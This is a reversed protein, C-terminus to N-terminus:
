IQWYIFSFVSSCLTIFLSGKFVNSGGNDDCRDAHPGICAGYSMVHAVYSQEHVSHFFHAWPGRAYIPVDAASHTSEWSQVAAPNLFDPDTYKLDKMEKRIIQKEEDVDYHKNFGPSNAYVLIPLSKKDVGKMTDSPGRVDVGRQEYAGFSISHGHDATVIILTDEESTMNLATLVADDFASTEMLARNAKGEHHGKDIKAGEVMLFFGEPNKQLIKLASETMESISPQSNSDKEASVYEMHSESFLGLVIVVNLMRKNLGGLPVVGGLIVRAKKGPSRKAMQFTIDKAGIESAGDPMAKDCEWKRLASHAVLSSPTAHSVRSTTVFGTSKNALQSWTMINTVWASENVHSELSGKKCSNDLGVCYYNTKIGSYLASATAASDPSQADVNYVKSLGIHPFKDFSLYSEEGGRTSGQSQAKFIRTASITPLGMGDGIFLIINRAKETNIRKRYLEEAVRLEEKGFDMWYKQDENKTKGRSSPSFVASQVDLILFVLILCLM